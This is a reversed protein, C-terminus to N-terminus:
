RYITELSYLMICLLSWKREVYNNYKGESNNGHPLAATIQMAVPETFSYEVCYFCQFAPCKM